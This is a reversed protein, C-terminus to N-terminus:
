VFLCAFVYVVLCAFLRMFVCVVVNYLCSRLSCRSKVFMGVFLCDNMRGILCVRWLVFVCIVLCVCRLCVCVFSWACMLVFPWVFSRVRM